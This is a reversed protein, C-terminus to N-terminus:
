AAGDGYKKPVGLPTCAVGEGYLCSSIITRTKPLVMDCHARRILHQPVTRDLGRLITLLRALLAGAGEGFFSAAGTSDTQVGMHGLLNILFANKASAAVVEAPVSPGRGARVDEVYSPVAKLKEALESGTM